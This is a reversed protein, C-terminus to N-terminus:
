NLHFNGDTTITVTNALAAYPLMCGGGTGATDFTTAGTDNLVADGEGSLCISSYCSKQFWKNVNNIPM